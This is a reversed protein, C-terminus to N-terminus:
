ERARETEYLAARMSRRQEDGAREGVMLGMVELIKDLYDDSRLDEDDLHEFRAQLDWDVQKLVREARRHAAVDTSENWRIM